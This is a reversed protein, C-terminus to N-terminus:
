IKPIFGEFIINDAFPKVKEYEEKSRVTWAFKFLKTKIPFASEEMSIFDPRVIFNLATHKVIFRNLPKEDKLDEYKKTSLVGSLKNPLLKKMKKVYLPNFSQTVFDGSYGNLIEAVTDVATGDPQNKIEILLPVKGNVLGLVEKLTPIQDKGFIKLEKIESSTLACIDLDEGTLRKMNRDHVSFIEGDKSKYLDIEIPYDNEVANKYASLTNEAINGNWLGRHAVPKPFLKGVKFDKM